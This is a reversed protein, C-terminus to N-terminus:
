YGFSTMLTGLVGDMQASALMSAGDIVLNQGSMYSTADSLLLAIVQAVEEPRGVRGLPTGAEVSGRLDDDQVILDNLPTHVFGPSVCNVRVLPALELAAAQTLAIVAAKAAAYPAEGRTPRIGSVSAVNVISGGGAAAMVPAAARIGHFVGAVNVKWITEFERDTYRDIPKLNGVGANNVLGGLGGLERVARAVAEDVAASDAVDAVFAVGGIEAAVQEASEADRDLVGVRRGQAGLQRCLAAGIGSGGGTVLVGSM